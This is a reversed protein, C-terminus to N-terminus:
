NPPCGTLGFSDTVGTSEGGGDLVGGAQGEKKARGWTAATKKKKKRANDLGKSLREGRKQPGRSHCLSRSKGEKGWWMIKGNKVGGVLNTVGFFSGKRKKKKPRGGFLNSKSRSDM